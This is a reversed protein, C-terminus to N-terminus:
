QRAISVAPKYNQEAAIKWDGNLKQLNLQFFLIKHTSKGSNQWTVDMELHVTATTPTESVFSIQGLTLNSIQNGHSLFAEKDALVFANDVSTKGYYIAVNPAYYSAQTAPDNTAIAQAWKHLVGTIDDQVSQESQQESAVEPTVQPSVQPAVDSVPSPMKPSAISPSASNAANASTGTIMANTTHKRASYLYTLSAILIGFGVLLCGVALLRRGQTTPPVPNDPTVLRIPESAPASPPTIDPVTAPQPTSTLESQQALLFQYGMYGCYGFFLVCPVFVTFFSLAFFVVNFFGYGWGRKDGVSVNGLGNWLVNLGILLVMKGVFEGQFNQSPNITQYTQGNPLPGAPTQRCGCKPCIEARRLIIKGCDMCYKEDQSAAQSPPLVDGEPTSPTPEM